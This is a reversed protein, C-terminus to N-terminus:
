PSGGVIRVADGEDGAEVTLGIDPCRLMNGFGEAGRDWGRAQDCQRAYSVDATDLSRLPEGGLDLREQALYLLMM